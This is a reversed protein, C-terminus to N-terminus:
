PYAGWLFYNAIRTARGPKDFGDPQVENAWASNLLEDHARQWDQAQLAARTNVFKFWKSEGMNFILEILANQRCPTNLYAWETLNQCEHQAETVDALFWAQVQATSFTVNTWDKSQDLLHGIGATWNGLSDRYATYRVGGEAQTIDAQLRPDLKAATTPRIEPYAASQRM